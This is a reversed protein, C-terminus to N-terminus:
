SASLFQCSQILNAAGDEAGQVHFGDELPDTVIGSPEEVGGTGTDRLVPVVVAFEEELGAGTGETRSQVVGEGGLPAQAASSEGSPLGDDVVVDRPPRCCGDGGGKGNGDSWMRMPCM